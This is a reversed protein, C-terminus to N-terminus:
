DGEDPHGDPWFTQQDDAIVCCRPGKDAIVLLIPEDASIVFRSPLFDPV